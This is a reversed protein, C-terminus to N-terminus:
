GRLLYGLLVSILAVTCVFLLPFGVQVKREGRNRKLVALEKQLTEREQINLKKEKALKSETAEAERLKYEYEYLKSRMMEIDEALKVVEADRAPKLEDNVLKSEGVNKIVIHDPTLEVKRLVQNNEVSAEYSPVQKLTGNIPSLVPSHPPSILIVRLKSEEIYRGDDKSFMSATIDEDTTEAPVVTSQILFKDKCILDPPAIRQAQMTVTFDRTSKPKVIGVNPRVCYKKPSTTKVKFAVYYQSKNVLGISCSSQKRLEFTFKLERPQIELLDSTM